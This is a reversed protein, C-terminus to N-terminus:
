MLTIEKKEIDLADVLEGRMVRHVYSEGVLHYYRGENDIQMTAPRLVFPTVMGLFACCVDGPQAFQPVLAFRGLKTVALRRNSCNRTDVEYRSANCAEKDSLLAAGSRAEPNCAIYLARLYAEFRRRHEKPHIFRRNNYGTVLTFSFGDHYQACELPEPPDRCRKFALSVYNWLVEIYAQRSTRLEDDWRDPNLAFNETKLLESTWTLHDFVFGQLTLLREVGLGRHVRYQLRDASGGTMHSLGLNGITFFPMPGTELKRWRPIWSPGNNGTVEDASSHQVFCLVYPSEHRSRLLACATDFYVDSEDKNYDPELLPEGENSVALPNGLFAYIHDRPDAASLSKGIQLVDLFLGPSDLYKRYLSQILPKSCKWSSANNYTRYVCRFVIRWFGLTLDDGGMLRTINTRGDCFCAFEILEAFSMSQDGWLLHCEKALGAEQVVWVRSFWSRSMLRRLKSGRAPDDCILRPPEFSPIDHTHKYIDLQDDLYLNWKKLLTFCDLAIGDEDPGLWALVLRANEYVHGIRKVQHSKEESSHQNICIADAWLRQSAKPSKSRIKRLADALSTTISLIKDNCNIDVTVNPNGWAYSVADYTNQTDQRLESTLNCKVTDGNAGPLLEIVRIRDEGLLEKYEFKEMEYHEVPPRCETKSTQFNHMSAVPKSFAGEGSLALSTPYYGGLLIRAV